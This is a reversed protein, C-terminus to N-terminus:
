DGATSVEKIAWYNGLKINQALYVSSMGGQGLTKIIRFKRDLLDNPRLM